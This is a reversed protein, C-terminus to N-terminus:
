MTLTTYTNFNIYSVIAFALSVLFLITTLTTLAIFTYKVTSYNYKDILKNIM